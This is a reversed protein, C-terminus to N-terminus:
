KEVVVCYISFKGDLVELREAVGHTEHILQGWAAVNRNVMWSPHIHPPAYMYVERGPHDAVLDGIAIDLDRLVELAGIGVELIVLHLNNEAANM